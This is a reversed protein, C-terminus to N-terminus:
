RPVSHRYAGYVTQTKFDTKKVEIRYLGPLLAALNYSGAANTTLTRADNTNVNQILIEAGPIVVGSEDSVTGM